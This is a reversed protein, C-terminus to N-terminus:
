FYSILSLNDMNMEKLYGLPREKFIQDVENLIMKDAIDYIIMTIIQNLKDENQKYLKYYNIRYYCTYCQYFHYKGKTMHCNNKFNMESFVTKCNDCTYCLNFEM